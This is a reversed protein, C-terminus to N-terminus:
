PLLLRSSHAVPGEDKMTKQHAASNINPPHLLWTRHLESKDTICETVETAVKTTQCWLLKKQALKLSPIILRKSKSFIRQRFDLAWLQRIKIEGKGKRSWSQYIAVDCMATHSM